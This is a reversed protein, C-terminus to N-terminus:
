IRILKPKIVEAENDELKSTPSGLLQELSLSVSLMVATITEM